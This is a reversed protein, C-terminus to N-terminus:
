SRPRSLLKFTRNATQDTVTEIKVYRWPGLQALLDATFAIAENVAVGTIQIPSGAADNLVVYTGNETDSVHIQLVTGDIGAPTLLGFWECNFGLDVASSLDADTGFTIIAENISYGENAM